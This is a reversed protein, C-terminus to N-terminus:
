PRMRRGLAPGERERALPHEYRANHVQNDFFIWAPAYDVILRISESPAGRGLDGCAVVQLHRYVAERSQLGTGRCHLHVEDKKLMGMLRLSSPVAWVIDLHQGADKIVDQTAQPLALEGCAYIVFARPTRHLGDARGHGAPLRHHVIHPRRCIPRSGRRCVLPPTYRLRTARMTRSSSTGPEFGPVGVMQLLLM